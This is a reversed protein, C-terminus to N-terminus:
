FGLSFLIRMPTQSPLQWITGHKRVKLFIPIKTLRQLAQVAILQNSYEELLIILAARVIYVYDPNAPTVDIELRGAGAFNSIPVSQFSEGSDTSKLFTNSTIAYWTTPDNPRMKLGRVNGSYKRIWTTGGDTSKHTGSSTAVIITNHDDPYVFIENMSYPSGLLSGTNNWTNGGDTSKWVGVAYSDGADDDGTAIYIVNSDTHDVAIGSVGIQPLYDTLPSWNVGADVSKWIGGAPTGVYYTNPHNPDITFTNVRGQGSSWSATNTHDCPGLSEWNSLDTMKAQTNKM